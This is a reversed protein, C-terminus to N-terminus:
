DVVRVRSAYLIGLMNKTVHTFVQVKNYTGFCKWGLNAETLCDEIGFSSMNQKKLSIRTYIFVLCLVHLKLYREWIHKLNAFNGKFNVSHEIEEKPIQPQFGYRRGIKEPSNKMHPKPCKLKIYQPVEISIIM